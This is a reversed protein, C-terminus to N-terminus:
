LRSCVIVLGVSVLLLGLREIRSLKEDFLKRSVAYSFLVEVLALTKVEAASAIAFATFWGISALAGMAGALTSLRWAGLLADRLGSLDRRRQWTLYSGLLLSQIVQALVVGMAGILWPSVGPQALAAGRFGVSAMAFCAGSGLGFLAAKSVWPNSGSLGAVAERKPLALMLLGVSSIVIAVLSAWHPVESLFLSSFLAVQLVETKAFTVGIIFNREQMAQLLLATAALQALAGSVLWTWYSFNFALGASTHTATDIGTGTGLGHVLLLWALAFPLGYLFRILTASLTGLEVTLTRQAANRATQALAAAIVIPMWAWPALLPLQM